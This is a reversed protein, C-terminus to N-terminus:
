GSGDRRERKTESDRQVCMVLVDSVSTLEEGKRAKNQNQKAAVCLYISTMISDNRIQKYFLERTETQIENDQCFEIIFLTQKRNKPGSSCCM